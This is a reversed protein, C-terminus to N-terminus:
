IVREYDKLDIKWVKVGCYRAGEPCIPRVGAMERLNCPPTLYKGIRPHTQRIQEAEDVSARWIEEQSNYCLRMAHKHHLSLLDASETFRVATANPLVYEAFEQAMGLEKLRAYSKWSREISGFFLDQAEQSAHEIVLPTVYDPTDDSLQMHLIPRSGPTMRHRQDQSDAAHSIRKRFTYHVNHLARSLKTQTTLVMTEGLITNKSPNLAFDIAQEDSMSNISLGLVERVSSALTAEANVKYDILRAFRGDLSEDFERRFEKAEGNRNMSLFEAEPYDEPALPEELIIRYNPDVRLLEDVMATVLALTESPTETMKALRWYRLLTIGSVTHYLYATTSIPLVYRAVEQSKKKIEKLYDASKNKRHPFRDFYADSVAPNLLEILEHYERTLREMESEYLL